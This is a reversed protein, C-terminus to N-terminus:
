RRFINRNVKEKTQQLTKWRRVLVDRSGDVELDAQELQQRLSTVNLRDAGDTAFNANNDGSQNKSALLSAKLLEKLLATSEEIKSWDPTQEVSDAEKLFLNTAAEKLLACSHSDALILLSATNEVKLFKEVLVSEAYLKLQVCDFCDAAVLLEIAFEEEHIEKIQVTYVFDLLMKFVEKRVTYIPIIAADGSEQVFLEYLKKCRLSLVCKHAHYLKGGVSFVADSTKSSADDYLDVLLSQQQLIEPYWLRRYKDEIEIDYLVVLIDDDKLNEDKTQLRYIHGYELRTSEFTQATNQCRIKFPVTVPVVRGTLALICFFVSRCSSPVIKLKWEYGHAKAINSVMLELGLYRETFNRLVFRITETTRRAGNDFEYGSITFPQGTFDTLRTNNYEFSAM